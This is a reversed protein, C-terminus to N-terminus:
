NRLQQFSDFNLFNFVTPEQIGNKKLYYLNCSWIYWMQTQHVQMVESSLLLITELANTFTDCIFVRKDTINFEM